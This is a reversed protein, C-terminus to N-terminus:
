AIAGGGDVSLTTGTVFGNAALFLIAEAVEEPRGVRGTPLRAATQDFFAQRAADPMGSWMPTEIIGPSVANVRVPARELALGRALAELGANIAAL